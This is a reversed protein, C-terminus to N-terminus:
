TGGDRRASGTESASAGVVRLTGSSAGPMPPTSRLDDIRDALEIRFRWGGYAELARGLEDWSLKKGDVIVDYPTGVPGGEESGVLRGEVVDKDEALVYGARHPNPELFRQAMDREARPVLAAVLEDVDADHDGLV